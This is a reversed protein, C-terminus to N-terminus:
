NRAMKGIDRRIKYGECYRLVGLYSKLSQDFKDKSILGEKLMKHGLSLKGLMRRKTKTRLIKHHPFVVYGLFDIGSSFSQISVKGPHLNLKLEKELFEGIKLILNKLWKKNKSLFVFDDAYRIYCEAKLKHKAFQDFKNMYINVLLQSTLNGLPLGIIRDNGGGERDNGRM